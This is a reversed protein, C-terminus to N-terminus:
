DRLWPWAYTYILYILGLIFALKIVKPVERYAM